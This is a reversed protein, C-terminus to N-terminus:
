SPNRYDNIPFIPPDNHGTTPLPTPSLSANDYLWAQCVERDSVTWNEDGVIAFARDGCGSILVVDGAAANSLTWEIARFRDPILQADGPSDFGDLIQHFPEYDVVNAVMSQTMVAQDAARDVVEGMRKRQSATQGPDVSCVCWVKGKAVQRISQLAHALQGPTRASDVWVGFPQGCEVRELRGPIRSHHELGRAITSLDIGLALGTAAAALCNYIHQDGIISTRVPVSESGAILLFTQDAAAREILKATINAEQRMGITLVPVDIRDLLQYSAPDDANVVAIGYPKLSKLMRLKARCYNGFTGHETTGERRINTLVSVDFSIGATSHSALSDGPIEVVAHSCAALAMESLHSAISPANVESAPIATRNGGLSLEASSQLGTQKGAARLVNRILHSTVTKGDTGSVGITTLLQSPNGGLAQCIRGYALRSDPVIVQPCDVALLRETVIAVAGRKIVEHSFDHGDQDPGVIAVFVDDPQCDDWKGCCSRTLVDDAGIFRADPLVDSLLIGALSRSEPCLVGSSANIAKAAARAANTLPNTM